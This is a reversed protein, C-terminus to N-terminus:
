SRLGSRRLRLSNSVVSASSLAMAASALVPTLLWGFAAYLAGAAVPIGIANYLFAWVLNQRMVRFTRNSLEIAAVAADLNSRMLTVDSAESAIDSGSAMALGADAQALAPADNVGDGVMAVRRGERQLRKVEAVKDEPLVGAIVEEIGAKRAVSMATSLVDGTLMVVRFGKARMRGVAAASTPKIPDAIGILSALSGDIAVFVPTAGEVAMREASAALPAVSIGRSELLRQNGILTRKGEVLASAGLGPAVEFETAASISLTRERAARVIAEALPHESLREVAAAAALVMGEQFGAAAEIGTVSPRGETITGTKDVLITDVRHLKELAEGGKFLIGAQAGRGVAVTVATPVALGVACPCAIVLVAVAASLARVVGPEAALLIWGVFTAIAISIVVPVFVASIRDALKQMPARSAQAERMLKVIQGLMGTAGGATARYSLSGLRNLTGGIVKGGPEKRVPVPEGTLMSEDVASTGEIVVGDVPIRDGPRVLIVDGTRVDEAPVDIEVTGRLVRAQPPQLQLMKKLAESTKGRVRSELANGALVLAIIMVVAEYYVEPQVGHRLFFAPAVTAALSYLFAAGTGVAILTNMDATRHRFSAWARAYFQRGAWGTVALTLLLLAYKLTEEGTTFLWPLARRVPAEILNMLSGPLPDGGGHQGHGSRSMLPMSLLIAAAGLVGSAIAKQRLDSYEELQAEDQAAQEEALSARTSPAEAGYGRSRIAEVLTEINTSGPDFSVRAQRAVLNVSAASVGPQEQLAERIQGVCSACTLGSVPITVEASDATAPRM